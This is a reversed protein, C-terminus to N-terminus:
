SKTRQKRIGGAINKLYRSIFLMPDAGHHLILRNICGVKCLPWAYPAKVGRVWTRFFIHEDRARGIIRAPSNGKKWEKKSFYDM